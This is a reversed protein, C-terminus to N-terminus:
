CKGQYLIQRDRCRGLGDLDPYIVSETVGADRLQSRVKDTADSRIVVGQIPDKRNGKQDEALKSLWEPDTGFIMFRSRQAAVRRELHPSDWLLPTKPPPWKKNTSRSAPLYLREWDSKSYNSKHLKLWSKWRDKADQRDPEWDLFKLLWYPNLCYVIADTTAESSRSTVAFHLAILSGDTWDLLRSPVGHHQMLFYWEWEWDDQPKVDSLQSASREFEDYLDNEIQLLDLAPLLPRGPTPRYLKPRLRTSLYKADEGRFWIEKHTPLRWAERMQEITTVFDGLAAATHTIM